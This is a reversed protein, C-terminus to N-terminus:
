LRLISTCCTTRPYLEDIFQPEVNAEIVFADDQPIIQLIPAGPGIVGGITFVSLEHVIGDVPAKIEIRKLQEVTSQLQQTMDNVEQEVERLEALVSQRLEREIQLIQIESENISNEIRALEADHEGIQGLLEERQRELSMVQNNTVLGQEKLDTINELEEGLMDRQRQKSSKLAKVGLIQNKFQAGQERLQEIQGNMSTRRAEFLKRHGEKISPDSEVQLLNLIRDDWSIKPEGDREAILRARRATAERIRSKYIQLNANLLTEDLKILTEGAKVRSGDAINIEAVIGGDLHQVTKPKGQVAVTGNAIVAGSLNAAYLWGGGGVFLFFFMFVGFWVPGKSSTNVEPTQETDAM